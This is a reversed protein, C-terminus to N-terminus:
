QESHRQEVTLTWILVHQFIKNGTGHLGSESRDTLILLVLSFYDPFNAQLQDLSYIFSVPIYRKVQGSPYRDKLDKPFTSSNYQGNDKCGRTNQQCFKEM